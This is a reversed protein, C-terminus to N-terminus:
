AHHGGALNGSIHDHLYIMFNHAFSLPRVHPMSESLILGACYPQNCLIQLSILLSPIM